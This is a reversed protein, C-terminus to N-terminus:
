KLKELLADVTIEITKSINNIVTNPVSIKYDSLLINFKGKLTVTGGKIEITATEKIPKTQGHITLKGEINAPYSGDKTINIEKINTVKGVFTAEPFKDTEMYNENFHQQLLAKEFNFSMILVKFVLDGTPNLLAANVQRSVGEIKEMQTDSNFRIMGNKTVYTQSYGNMWFCIGVLLLMWLKKM